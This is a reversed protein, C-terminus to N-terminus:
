SKDVTLPFSTTGSIVSGTMTAAFADVRYTGPQLAVFCILADGSGHAALNVATSTIRRARGARRVVAYVTAVIPVSLKSTFPLSVLVPCYPKSTPGEPRGPILSSESYGLLTLPPPDRLALYHGRRNKVQIQYEDADLSAPVIFETEANGGPSGTMLGIAVDPKDGVISTLYYQEGALLGRAVARIKYGIGASRADLGLSARLEFPAAAVADGGASVIRVETATGLEGREGSTALDPVAFKLGPPTAGRLAGRFEGVEVGGFTIRYKQGNTFGAGKVGVTTGVTGAPPSIKLSIL